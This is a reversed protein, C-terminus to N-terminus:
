CFIGTYCTMYFRGVLSKCHMLSEALWSSQGFSMGKQAESQINSKSSSALGSFIIQLIVHWQLKWNTLVTWESTCCAHCFSM